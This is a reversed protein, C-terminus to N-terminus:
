WQYVTALACLSTEGRIFRTSRAYVPKGAYLDHRARMVLKWRAYVTALACLSTEVACLGYRARM